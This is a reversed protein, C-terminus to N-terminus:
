LYRLNEMRDRYLKNESYQKAMDEFPQGAKLKELIMEMKARIRGEEAEDALAPVKMIINRLHYKKEGDYLTYKIM